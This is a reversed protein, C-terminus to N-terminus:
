RQWDWIPINDESGRDHVLYKILELPCLFVIGDFRKMEGSTSKPYHCKEVADFTPQIQNFGQSWHLQGNMKLGSQVLKCLGV